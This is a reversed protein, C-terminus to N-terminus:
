NLERKIQRIENNLTRLDQKMNEIKRNTSKKWNKYDAPNIGDEEDTMVNLSNELSSLRSELSSLEGYIEMKITNTKANLHNIESEFTNVSNEINIVQDKSPVSSELSNIASNLNKIRQYLDNVDENTNDMASNIKKISNQISKSERRDNKSRKKPFSYYELEHKNTKQPFGKKDWSREIVHGRQILLEKSKTGNRHWEQYKTLLGNQNYFYRQEPSLPIDYSFDTNISYITIAKPTGNPYIDTIQTIYDSTFLFSIIFLNVILYRM